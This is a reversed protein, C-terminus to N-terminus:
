VARRCPLFTFDGTITTTTDSIAGNDVNKATVKAGPVVASAPDVVTGTIAGRDSQAYAAIALLSCFITREFSATFRM